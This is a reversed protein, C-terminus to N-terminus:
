AAFIPSNRIIVLNENDICSGLCEFRFPIASLMGLTLKKIWETYRTDTKILKSM